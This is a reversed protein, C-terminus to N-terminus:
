GRLGKAIVVVRPAEVSVPACLEWKILHGTRVATVSFGDPLVRTWRQVGTKARAVLQCIAVKHERKMDLVRKAM